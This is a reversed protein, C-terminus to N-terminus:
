QGALEFEAVKHHMDVIESFPKQNLGALFEMVETVYATDMKSIDLTMGNIKCRWIPSEESVTIKGCAFAIPQFCDWILGDNGHRFYDYYSERKQPANQLFGMQRYQLVMSVKARLELLDDRLSTLERMDKTVPKEVLVPRQYRAYKRIDDPHCQTPTAVIIHSIAGMNEDILSFSDPRKADVCIAARKLLKLISQYRKGQAGDSGILLVSM